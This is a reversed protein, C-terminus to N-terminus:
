KGSTRERFSAEVNRLLVRANDITAREWLSLPEAQNDNSLGRMKEQVTQIKALTRNANM